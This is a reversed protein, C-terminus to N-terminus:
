AKGKPPGETPVWTKNGDLFQLTSYQPTSSNCASGFSYSVNKYCSMANATALSCFFVTPLSISMHEQYRIETLVEFKLYRRVYGQVLYCAFGTVILMAIAWVIRELLNGTCYWSLGHVTFSTKYQDIRSNVCQRVRDRRNQATVPEGLVHGISKSYSVYCYCIM